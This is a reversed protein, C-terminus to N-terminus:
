EEGEDHALEIYKREPCNCIDLLTRMLEEVEDDEIAFEDRPRRHLVAEYLSYLNYPPEGEEVSPEFDCGGELDGQICGCWSLKECHACLAGATADAQDILDAIKGILAGDIDRSMPMGFAIFPMEVPYEAMPSQGETMARLRAAVSRREEDTPMM